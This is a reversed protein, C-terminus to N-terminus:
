LVREMMFLKTRDHASTAMVTKVAADDDCTSASRMVYLTVDGVLELGLPQFTVPVIVVGVVPVYVLELPHVYLM